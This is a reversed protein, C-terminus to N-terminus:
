RRIILQLRINIKLPLNVRHRLLVGHHRLPLPPLATHMIYGYISTVAEAETAKDGPLSYENGM